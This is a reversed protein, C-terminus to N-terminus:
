ETASAESLKKAIAMQSKATSANDTVFMFVADEIGESVAISRLANALNEGTHRGELPRCGLVYIELEWDNNVFVATLSVYGCGKEDAWVDTTGSLFGASKLSLAREADSKAAVDAIERSISRRSIRPCRPNLNELMKQLGNDEVISMPRFSRVIWEACLARHRRYSESEPKYPEQGIKQLLIDIQMPRSAIPYPRGESLNSSSEFAEFAARKGCVAPHRSL